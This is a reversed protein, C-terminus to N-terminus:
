SSGQVIYLTCKVKVWESGDAAKDKEDSEKTAHVKAQCGGRRLRPERRQKRQQVRALPNDRVRSLGRSGRIGQLPDRLSFCSTSNYVTHCV